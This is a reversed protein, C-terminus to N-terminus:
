VTRLNRIANKFCENETLIRIIESAVKEKSKYSVDVKFMNYFRSIEDLNKYLEKMKNESKFLTTRMDDREYNRKLITEMSAFLFFSVDADPYDSYINKIYDKKVNYLSRYAMEDYYYRDFIIIKGQLVLKKIVRMYWNEAEYLSQQIINNILKKDEFVEQGAFMIKTQLEQFAQSRMYFRTTIIDYDKLQEYLRDLDDVDMYIESNGNLVLASAYKLNYMKCLMKSIMEVSTTKGVGDFGSISIIMEVVSYLTESFCM